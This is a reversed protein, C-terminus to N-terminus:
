GEKCMDLDAKSHGVVDMQGVHCSEVVFVGSKVLCSRVDSAVLGSKSHFLAEVQCRWDEPKKSGHMLTTVQPCGVM